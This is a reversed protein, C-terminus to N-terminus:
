LEGGLRAERAQAEGIECLRQGHHLPHQQGPGVAVMPLALDCRALDGLGRDVSGRRKGPSHWTAAIAVARFLMSRNIGSMTSVRELIVGADTNRAGSSQSVEVRARVQEAHTMDNLSTSANKHREALVSRPAHRVLARYVVGDARVTAHCQAAM